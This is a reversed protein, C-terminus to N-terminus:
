QGMYTQVDQMHGEYTENFHLKGSTMDAVFYLYNTDNPNVCAEISAIGPSCIPGYPLGLNLYTNYPSQVQTQDTTLVDTRTGNIYDITIDSQLPMNQAIRNLFVSAADPRDEPLKTELEVVSALIIVDDVTRGSDQTEQIMEPTYVETLRTLQNDILNQAGAPGTGVVNYTDPFLYGELTRDAIKDEPISDLIHYTAKYKEINSAEAIFEDITCIGADQVIQAQENINKGEPITVNTIQGVYSDGNVLKTFIEPVGMSQNLEYTAAQIEAGGYSHRGAYSTFVLSNRILDNDELIQSVEKTSLGSPIDVYLNETNEPNVPQLQQNYLILGAAILIVLLVLSIIVGVLKKGIGPREEYVEDDYFDDQDYQNDRENKDM